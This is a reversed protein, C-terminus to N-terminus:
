TKVIQGLLYSVREIEGSNISRTLYFDDDAEMSAIKADEDDWSLRSFERLHRKFGANDCEEYTAAVDVVKDHTGLSLEYGYATDVKNSSPTDEGGFVSHNRLSFYRLVVREALFHEIATASLRGADTDGNVHRQKWVLGIKSTGIPHTNASPHGIEIAHDVQETFVSIIKGLEEPNIRSM